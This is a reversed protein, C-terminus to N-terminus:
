TNIGGGGGGGGVCVCVCITSNDRSTFLSMSDVYVTLGSALEADWECKPCSGVRVVGGKGPDTETLASLPM